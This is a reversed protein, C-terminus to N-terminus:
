SVPLRDICFAAGLYGHASPMDRADAKMPMPLHKLGDRGVRDWNNSPDIWLEATVVRVGYNKALFRSSAGNGPGVDLVRM